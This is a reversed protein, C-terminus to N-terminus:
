YGMFIDIGNMIRITLGVIRIKFKYCIELQMNYYIKLIASDTLMQQIQPKIDLILIWAM